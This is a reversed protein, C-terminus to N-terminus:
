STIQIVPSIEVKPSAVEGRGIMGFLVDGYDVKSRKNVEIFDDAAILYSDSFDIGDGKLNKSTILPYGTNSPKPTDHTGDTVQFCVESSKIIKWTEPIEGLETKKFRQKARM